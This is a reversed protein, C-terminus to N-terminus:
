PRGNQERLRYTRELFFPGSDSRTFGKLNRSSFPGDFRLALSITRSELKVQSGEEEDRLKLSCGKGQFTLEKWLNGFIQWVPMGLYPVRDRRVALCGWDSCSWWIRLKRKGTAM